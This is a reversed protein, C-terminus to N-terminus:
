LATNPCVAAATQSSYETKGWEIAQGGDQPLNLALMRTRCNIWVPLTHASMRREFFYLNTQIVPIQKDIIETKASDVAVFQLVQPKLYSWPKYFATKPVEAVVAASPPLLSRTHDFWSYESYIQFGLMGLGAAAPVWWKPLRKAFMRIMMMIGAAGFGAAATAFLEWIM